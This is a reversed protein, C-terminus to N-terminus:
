DSNISQKHLEAKIALGIKELTYPKKIYQGAGLQQAIEVEETEAFGSAIVAKQDPRIEIIKQYTQRGNMGPFMIMDLLILDVIRTKLYEVAKEGSSVAEVSYGLKTLIGCAIMRQSKEDDIVLIKEGEGKYDELPIQEADTLIDERTVPFYLEFTTREKESNVNIYGNHDQVTNWVVTLGLGTGSRGLVKKTYFPEFIRELDTSSIGIGSDSVRLVAYEGQHVDVYGKLPEDVYRNYTSVVVKGRDQVAEAANTVLNM